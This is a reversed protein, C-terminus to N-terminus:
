LALVPYGRQAVEEPPQRAPHPVPLRTRTAGTEATEARGWEMGSVHTM